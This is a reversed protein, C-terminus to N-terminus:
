LEDVDCEDEDNISSSSGHGYIDDEYGSNSSTDNEYQNYM